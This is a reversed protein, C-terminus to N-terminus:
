RTLFGTLSSLVASLAIANSRMLSLRWRFDRLRSERQYEPMLLLRRGEVEGKQLRLVIDGRELFAEFIEGGQLRLSKALGRPLTIKYQGNSKQFQVRVLNVGFRPRRAATGSGDFNSTQTM